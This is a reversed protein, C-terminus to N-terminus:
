ITGEREKKKELSQTKGAVACMQDRMAAKRKKHGRFGLHLTEPFRQIAAAVEWPQFSPLTEFTQRAAQGDRQLPVLAAASRSTRSTRSVQYKM